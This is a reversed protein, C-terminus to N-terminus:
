QMQQEREWSCEERSEKCLQSKETNLRPDFTGEESSGARDNDLPVEWSATGKRQKVKRVTSIM